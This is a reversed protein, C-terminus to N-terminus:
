VGVAKFTHKKETHFLLWYAGVIPLLLINSVILAKTPGVQDAIWGMAVAAVAFCLSGAFSNLSGMTARKEQSFEKQLLTNIAVQDAGFLLSTSSLLLPSLPGPFLLATFGVTRYYLNAGTLFKLAGFKKMVRGGFYFSISAGVYSITNALSVAWLPWVTSIFAARFAFLTEGIGFRWIDTLSLIRLKPNKVFLFFAEKLHAFVNTSERTFAKPEHFLWSCILTGVQFVASVWMLVPFSWWALLAGVVSSVALGIPGFSSIKGLYESFRDVKDEEKLTDMLLADNNGSFFSRSAGELVAGLLLIWYSSGIAYLVVALLICLAGLILTKRRGILDSFVGTPVELVAAALMVASFVSMSLAYSGTVRAFYLVALPAYPRFDLFFNFWGLLRLNRNTSV